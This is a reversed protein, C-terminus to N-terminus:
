VIRKTPLTLHTYSVAQKADLPRKKTKWRSVLKIFRDNSESYEKLGQDKLWTGSTWERGQEFGRCHAERVIFFREELSGFPGAKSARGLPYTRCAGPRDQYVSCGEPRVFPCSRKANDLMRLHVFPFGTVRETSVQTFGHVLDASNMALARRLRLVDYPTLSLNLDGCCANFCSVGPGCGFRFTQGNKLEPLSKLFAETADNQRM